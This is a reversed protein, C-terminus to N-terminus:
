NSNSKQRRKEALASQIFTVERSLMDTAERCLEPQQTMLELFADRGVHLVEAKTVAFAALSYTNGTFTAPVGLLSGASFVRNLRELDRVSLCVKGKLVLYVGQNQQDVEFLRHKPPYHEVVGATVLSKKLQDSVKLINSKTGVNAM